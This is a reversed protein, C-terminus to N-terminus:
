ASNPATSPESTVWRGSPMSRAFAAAIGNIERVPSWSTRRAVFTFFPCTKRIVPASPLTPLEATGVAFFSPACTIAPTRPFSSSSARESPTESTSAISSSLAISFKRKTSAIASVTPPSTAAFSIAFTFCLPEKPQVATNGSLVAALFGVTFILPTRACGSGDLTRSNASSTRSPLNMRGIPRRIGNRSATSACTSPSFPPMPFIRRSAGSELSHSERKAILVPQLLCLTGGDDKTASAIPETDHQQRAVSTAKRFKPQFILLKHDGPPCLNEHRVQSSGRSRVLPNKRARLPSACDIFRQKSGVEELLDQM